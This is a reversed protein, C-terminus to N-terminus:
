PLQGCGFHAAGLLGVRDDLVVTVPVTRLLEAHRGKAAFTELLSSRRLQRLLHRVVGGTFYIGGTAM